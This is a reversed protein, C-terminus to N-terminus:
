SRGPARFHDMAGAHKADECLANNIEAFHMIMHLAHDRRYRWGIRSLTKARKANAYDALMRPELIAVRNDGTFCCDARATEDDCRPRPRRHRRNGPKVSTRVEGVLSNEIQPLSRLM